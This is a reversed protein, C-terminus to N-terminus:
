NWSCRWRLVSSSRCWRWWRLYWYTPRSCNLPFGDSHSFQVCWNRTIVPMHRHVSGSCNSCRTDERLPALTLQVACNTLLRVEDTSEHMFASSLLDSEFLGSTIAESRQSRDTMLCFSPSFRSVHLSLTNLKVRRAYWPIVGSSIWPNGIGAKRLPMLPLAAPCSAIFNPLRLVSTYATSCTM